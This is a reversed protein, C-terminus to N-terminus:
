KEINEIDFFINADIKLNTYIRYLTDYSVGHSGHRKVNMIKDYESISLDCRAAMQQNTLNNAKKYNLLIEM